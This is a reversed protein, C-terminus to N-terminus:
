RAAVSQGILPGDHSSGSHRDIMAVPCLRRCRASISAPALIRSSVEVYARESRPSLGAVHPSLVLNPADFLVRPVEPEEAYVDLAAGAIVRAHLADALAATDVVTGRGVNVLYGDAGLARPM